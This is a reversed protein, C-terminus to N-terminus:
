EFTDQGPEPPDDSYSEFTDQGPEPPDDYSDFMDQDPEPPDVFQGTGHPGIYNGHTDFNPNGQSDFAPRPDIDDDEWPDDVLAGVGHPGIYRGQNDYRHADADHKGSRGHHYGHQDAFVGKCGNAVWLNGTAPNFGWSKNIICPQNSTQLVLQPAEFPTPCENYHKHESLCTVTEPQGHHKGHHNNAHAPTFAGAFAGLVLLMPLAAASLRRLHRRAATRTRLSPM